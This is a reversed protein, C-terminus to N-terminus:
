TGGTGENFRISQETQGTGVDSLINFPGFLVFSEISRLSRRKFGARKEWGINRETVLLSPSPSSPPPSLLRLTANLIQEM